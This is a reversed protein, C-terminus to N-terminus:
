GRIARWIRTWIPTQRVHQHHLRDSILEQSARRMDRVLERAAEVNLVEPDILLWGSCLRAIEALRAPSMQVFESETGYQVNSAHLREQVSEIGTPSLM